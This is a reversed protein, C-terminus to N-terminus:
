INMFPITLIYLYRSRSKESEKPLRRLDRELEMPNTPKKSTMVQSLKPTELNRVLECEESLILAGSAKDACSSKQWGKKSAGLSSIELRSKFSFHLKCCKLIIHTDAIM